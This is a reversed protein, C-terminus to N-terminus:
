CRKGRTYWWFCPDYWPYKHLKDIGGHWQADDATSTHDDGPTFFHTYSSTFNDITGSDTAQGPYTEWHHQSSWSFDGDGVTDYAKGAYPGADIFWVETDRANDADSYATEDVRSILSLPQTTL